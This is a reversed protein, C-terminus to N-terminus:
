EGEVGLVELMNEDHRISGKKTRVDGFKALKVLPCDSKSTHEASNLIMAVLDAWTAQNRQIVKGLVDPFISFEIPLSACGAGELKTTECNTMRKGERAESAVVVPAGEKTNM